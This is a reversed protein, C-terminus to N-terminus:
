KSIVVLCASFLNTTVITSLGIVFCRFTLVFFVFLLNRRQNIQKLERKKEKNNRRNQTRNINEYDLAIRIADDLIKINHFQNMVQYRENSNLGSVFLLIKHEDDLIALLHINKSTWCWFPFGFLENMSKGFDWSSFVVFVTLVSPVIWVSCILSTTSNLTPPM